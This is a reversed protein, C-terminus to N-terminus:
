IQYAPDTEWGANIANDAHKCRLDVGLRLQASGM